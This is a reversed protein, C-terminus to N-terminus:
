APAPMARVVLVGDEGREVAPVVDSVDLRACYAVDEGLGMEVLDAAHYASAVAAAIDGAGVFANRAFRAADSTDPPGALGLAADVIAGAGIADELVFRSGGYSASCVVAVDLGRERAASVAAAAIARRNLLSGVFLAPADALAALM